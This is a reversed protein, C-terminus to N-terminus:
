VCANSNFIGNNAVTVDTLNEMIDGDLSVAFASRDHTLTVLYGASKDYFLLGTVRNKIGTLETYAIDKM